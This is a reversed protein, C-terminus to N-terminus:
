VLGADKYWGRVNALHIAAHAGWPTWDLRVTLPVTTSAHAARLVFPAALPSLLLSRRRLHPPSM